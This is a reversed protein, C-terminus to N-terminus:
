KTQGLQLSYHKAITECQASELSASRGPCIAFDILVRALDMRRAKGRRQVSESEFTASPPAFIRLRELTGGSAKDGGLCSRTHLHLLVDLLPLVTASRAPRTITAVDRGM